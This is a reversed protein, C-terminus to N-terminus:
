IKYGAHVADDYFMRVTDLSYQDLDYGFLNLKKLVDSTLTGRFSGVEYFRERCEYAALREEWALREYLTALDTAIDRPLGAFIPAEFARSRLFEGDAIDEGV